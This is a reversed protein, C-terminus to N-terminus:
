RSSRSARRRRSSGFVTMEMRFKEADEPRVLRPSLLHLSLMRQTQRYLEIPVLVAADRGRQTIVIPEQRERARAILKRADRVLDSIPRIEPVRGNVSFV